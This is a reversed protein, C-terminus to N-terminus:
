GEIWDIIKLSSLVMKGGSSGWPFGPSSGMLSDDYIVNGQGSVVVSNGAAAGYIKGQGSIYVRGNPAYLVCKTDNQGASRIAVDYEGPGSKTSLSVIAVDRLVATSQGELKIQGEAIITGNGTVRSQGAIYVDKDVWITGTVVVEAQGNITLNGGIHRQSLTYNQNQNLVVDGDINLTNYVVQEVNSDIPPMELKETVHTKSGTVNSSGVITGYYEANGNVTAQDIISINGNSRINGQNPEPSSNTTSQGRMVMDSDSFLAYDWISSVVSGGANNYAAEFVATVKKSATTGYLAPVQSFMEVRFKKEGEYTIRQIEYNGGGLQKSGTAYPVPVSISSPSLGNSFLYDYVAQFVVGGEEKEINIASDAIELAQSSRDELHTVKSKNRSVNISATGLIMLMTVIMLVIIITSGKSNKLLSTIYRGGAM